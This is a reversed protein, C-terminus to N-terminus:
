SYKYHHSQLKVELWLYTKMMRMKLVLTSLVMKLVQVVMKLTYHSLFTSTEMTISVSFKLLKGKSKVMRHMQTTIRLILQFQFLHIYFKGRVIYVCISVVFKLFEQAMATMLYHVNKGKCSNKKSCYSSSGLPLLVGLHMHLIGYFRCIM